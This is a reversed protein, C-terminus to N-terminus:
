FCRKRELCGEFTSMKLPGNSPRLFDDFIVFFYKTKHNKKKKQNKKHKKFVHMEGSVDKLCQAGPLVLIAGFIVFINSGFIM